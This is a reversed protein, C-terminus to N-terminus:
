PIPEWYPLSENHCETCIGGEREHLCSKCTPKEEEWNRKIQSILRRLKGEKVDELADMRIAQELGDYSVVHNSEKGHPRVEIWEMDHVKIALGSIAYIRPYPRYSM